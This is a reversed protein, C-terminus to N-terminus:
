FKPFASSIRAAVEAVHDPSLQAHRFLEPLSVAGSLLDNLMVPENKLGFASRYDEFKFLGGDIDAGLLHRCPIGFGDAVIIGHLSSSLVAECSAIKRIIELLREEINESGFIEPSILEAQPFKELLQKIQSSDIEKYNPVIGLPITKDPREKLLQPMLLGGDGLPVDIKKGLLKELCEQSKKGRLACIQLKRCVVDNSDPPTLFGSTWITAPTQFRGKIRRWLNGRSSTIKGLISGIPFLEANRYKVLKLDIGFLKRLLFPNIADGLNIHKTSYYVRVAM